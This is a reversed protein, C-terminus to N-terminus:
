LLEKKEIITDLAAIKDKFSKGSLCGAIKDESILEVKEAQPAFEDLVFNGKGVAQEDINQM